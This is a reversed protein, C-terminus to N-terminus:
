EAEPVIVTLGLMEWNQMGGRYYYIKSAPYGLKLLNKIATPSQGCWSGNCWLLIDKAESYDWFGTKDKESLGMNVMANEITRTVTGVEGRRKAGLKKMPEDLNPDNPKLDFATFPINISGPITGKQHWSPLRADIILGKGTNVKDLMFDFVEIEGLTTVDPAASIPEICFPPCKRSTKAWSPDVLHGQDQNRMIRVMKGQHKVEIYEKDKTLMVDLAAQAPIAVATSIVLLTATILHKTFM